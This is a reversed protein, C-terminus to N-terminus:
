SYVLVGVFSIFFILAISKQFLTLKISNKEDTMKYGTFISNLTKHKSHFIKDVIVGTIHVGILALLTNALIEHLDEFFNVKKFFSSNLFSFVGKGEEIGFTLAGTLIILFVVLLIAIMVYSAPPNHGIYEQDSKFFNYLYNKINGMGLPFDEFKSYQPGLYGWVVRFVLLIFIGYGVTAHYDLLDDDDTLFAVLILFALLAHFIRTPLSWIYSKFM